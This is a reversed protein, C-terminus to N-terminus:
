GYKRRRIAEALLDGLTPRPPNNASLQPAPRDLDASKIGSKNGVLKRPCPCRAAESEACCDRLGACRFEIGRAVTRLDMM